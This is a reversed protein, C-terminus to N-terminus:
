DNDTVGNTLHQRFANVKEQSGWACAPIKNYIHKVIAYMNAINYVDAKGFAGALDNCLVATLFSGPMIGRTVYLDLAQMTHEPVRQAENQKHLGFEQSFDSDIFEMM